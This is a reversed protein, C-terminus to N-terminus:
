RKVALAQLYNGNLRNSYNVIELPNYEISKQYYFQMALLYKLEHTKAYGPICKRAENFYMDAKFRYM